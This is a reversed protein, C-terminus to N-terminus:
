HVLGKWFYGKIGIKLRPRGRHFSASYMHKDVRNILSDSFSLPTAYIDVHERTKFCQKWNKKTENNERLNEWIPMISALM